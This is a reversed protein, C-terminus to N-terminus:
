FKLMYFKYIYIRQKLLPKVTKFVFHKGRFLTVNYLKLYIM